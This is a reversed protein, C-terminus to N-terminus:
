APEPADAPPKPKQLQVVLEIAAVALTAFGVITGHPFQTFAGIVLVVSVLDRWLAGPWWLLVTAVLHPLVMGVLVLAGVLVGAGAFVGGFVQPAIDDESLGIAVLLAGFGGFAFLFVAATLLQFAAYTGNLAAAIRRLLLRTDADPM